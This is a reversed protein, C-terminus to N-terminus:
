MHLTIKLLVMGSFSFELPIEGGKRIGISLSPLSMRIQKDCSEPQLSATLSLFRGDPQPGQVQNWGDKPFSGVCCHTQTKSPSDM